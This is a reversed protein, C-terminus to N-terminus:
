SAVIEVEFGRANVEGDVTGIRGRELNHARLGARVPPAFQERVPVRVGSPRRM